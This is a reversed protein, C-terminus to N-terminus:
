NPKSPLPADRLFVFRDGDIRYYHEKGTGEKEDLDGRLILLNSDIKFSIMDVDYGLESFVCCISGPLWIVKGNWADIAAGMICETGCGWVGVIYHGAFNPAQSAARRLRTRYSFGDVGTTPQLRQTDRRHSNDIPAPFDKFQVVPPPNQATVTQATLPTTGFCLLVGGFIITRFLMDQM